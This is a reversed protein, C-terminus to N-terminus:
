TLEIGFSSNKYEELILSNAPPLKLNSSFPVFNELHTFFVTPFFLFHQNSGSNEGEGVTKNKLIM